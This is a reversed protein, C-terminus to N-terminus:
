INNPFQNNLSYEKGEETIAVVDYMWNMFTM